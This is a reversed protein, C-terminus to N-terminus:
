KAPWGGEFKTVQYRNYDLMSLYFEDFNPFREILYGAFWIVVGPERSWPLGLLFMDSQEASAAVPLVDAIEFGTNEAFIEPEIAELQSRAADMVPGGVLGATGLIDVYQYFCQWGNAYRLFQRYASNLQFGLERETATIENESAAV